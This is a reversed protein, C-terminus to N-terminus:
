FINSSDRLIQMTQEKKKTKILKLTSVIKIVLTGLAYILIAFLFPVFLFFKSPFLLETLFFSRIILIACIITLKTSPIILYEKKKDLM